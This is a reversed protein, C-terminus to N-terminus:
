PKTKVKSIFYAVMYTYWGPFMLQIIAMPAKKTKKYRSMLSQHFCLLSSLCCRLYVKAHIQHVFNGNLM